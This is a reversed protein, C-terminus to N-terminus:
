NEEALADRLFKAMQKAGNNNLHDPDMWNNQNIFISDPPILLNSYWEPHAPFKEITGYGHLYLFYIKVGHEQGLRKIRNLWALPFQEALAVALETPHRNRIQIYRDKLVVSDTTLNTEPYGFDTNPISVQTPTERIVRSMWYDRRAILAAFCDSLYKRNWVTPSVYIDEADALYPFMPHSIRDELERVELIVTKPHKTEIIEKLFFYDMNRGPRCYGLNLVHFPHHLTDAWMKELLSDQVAHIIRSSGIFAIDVPKPNQYLRQYIWLGHNYCDDKTTQYAFSKPYPLSFLLVICFGLSLFFFAAKVIRKRITNM